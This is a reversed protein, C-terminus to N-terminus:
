SKGSVLIASDDDYFLLKNNVVGAMYNVYILFLLSELIQGQPLGCTVNKFSSQIGSVDTYQKRSSLYSEFWRIVDPSFGIMKLKDFLIFHDVTDFAKQLDLLVMGGYNGNDLNFRIFDSLHTPQSLNGLDQSFSM